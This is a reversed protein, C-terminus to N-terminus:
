KQLIYGSDWATWFPRLMTRQEPSLVRRVTQVYNETRGLIRNEIAKIEFQMAEIKEQKANDGRLKNFAARKAFAEAKLPELDRIFGERLGKVRSAQDQTLNLDILMFDPVAITMDIVHKMGPSELDRSPGHGGMGRNGAGNLSMGHGGTLNPGMQAFSLSAWIFSLLLVTVAVSMRKMTEERIHHRVKIGDDKSNM